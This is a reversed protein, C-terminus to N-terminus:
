PIMGIVTFQAQLPDSKERRFSFYKYGGPSDWACHSCQGSLQIHKGMIGCQILREWIASELDVYYKKLNSDYRAFKEFQKGVDEQVEFHCARIGPGVYILTEQPLLGLENEAKEITFEIVGRLIGKWGAHIIGVIEQVPDYLYIPFCDAATTSLFVGKDGTILADTNPIRLNNWLLNANSPRSIIEAKNGHVLKASVFREYPINHASLYGKRRAIVPADWEDHDHLRMTGDKKESFLAIVKDGFYNIQM